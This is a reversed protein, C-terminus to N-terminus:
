EKEAIPPDAELAAREVETLQISGGDAVRMWYSRFASRVRYFLDEVAHMRARARDTEAWAENVDPARNDKATSRSTRSAIVYGTISSAALIVGAIIPAILQDM